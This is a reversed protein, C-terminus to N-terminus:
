PQQQYIIYRSHFYDTATVFKTSIYAKTVGHCIDCWSMKRFPCMVSVKSQTSRIIFISYQLARKISSGPLYIDCWSLHWVMVNKFITMTHCWDDLIYILDIYIQNQVKWNINWKKMTNFTDLKSFKIFFFLEWYQTM